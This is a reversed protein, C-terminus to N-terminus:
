LKRWLTEIGCRPARRIFSAAGGTFIGTSDIGDVLRPWFPSAGVYFSWKVSPPIQGAPATNAIHLWKTLVYPCLSAIVSSRRHFLKCPSAPPKTSPQVTDRDIGSLSCRGNISADLM